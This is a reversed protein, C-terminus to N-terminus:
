LDGREKDVEVLVEYGELIANGIRQVVNDPM